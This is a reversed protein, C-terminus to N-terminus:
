EAAKRRIVDLTKINQIASMIQSRVEEKRSKRLTGSSLGFRKEGILLLQEKTFIDRSLLNRLEDLSINDIDFHIDPQKGRIYTQKVDVEQLSRRLRSIFERGSLNRYPNLTNRLERIFFRLSGEEGSELKLIDEAAKLTRVLDNLKVRSKEDRQEPGESMREGTLPM